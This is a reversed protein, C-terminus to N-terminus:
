FIYGVGITFTLNQYQIDMSTITPEQTIPNVTHIKDKIIHAAVYDGNLLLFQNGSFKYKLGIGMDYSFGGASYKEQIYEQTLDGDVYLLYNFQPSFLNMYGAMIRADIYLNNIPVVLYAGAYGGVSGWGKSSVILNSNSNELQEDIINNYEDLEIKNTGGLIRGAFGINYGLRYNASFDFALGTKAFQGNTELYGDDTVMIENNAFDGLPSSMGISLGLLLEDKQAFTFIPLLVVIMLIIKPKM